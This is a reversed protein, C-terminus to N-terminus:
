KCCASAQLPAREIAWNQDDTRGSSAELWGTVSDSVGWLVSHGKFVERDKEMTM